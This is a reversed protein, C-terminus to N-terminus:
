DVVVWIRRLARARTHARSPHRIWSWGFGGWARARARARHTYVIRGGYIRDAAKAFRVVKSVVRYRRLACPRDAATSKRRDDLGHPKEPSLSVQGCRAAM